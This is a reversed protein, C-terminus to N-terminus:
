MITMLVIKKKLSHQQYPTGRSYIPRLYNALINVIHQPEEHIEGLINRMVTIQEFGRKNSIKRIRTWLQTPHLGSNMSTTCERQCERKSQNVMLKAQARARKFAM